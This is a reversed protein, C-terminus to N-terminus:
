EQYRMSRVEILDEFKDLLKRAEKLPDKETPDFMMSTGASLTISEYPATNVKREVSVWVKDLIVEVGSGLVVETKLENM